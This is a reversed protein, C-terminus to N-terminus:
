IIDEAMMKGAAVGLTTMLKIHEYLAEDLDDQIRQLEGEPDEAYAKMDISNQINELVGPIRKRTVPDTWGLLEQQLDDIMDAKAMIKLEYDFM